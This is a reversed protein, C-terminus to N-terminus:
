IDKAIKDMLYFLNEVEDNTLNQTLKGEITQMRTEVKEYTECGQETIIIKKLRADYNVAERQILGNKEMLQLIGTATSRRIQFEDEIDKQFVEKDKSQIKLYSLVGCQMGTIPSDGSIIPNADLLRQIKNNLGKFSFM